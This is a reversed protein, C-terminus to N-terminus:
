DTVPPNYGKKRLKEYIGELVRRGHEAGVEYAEKAIFPAVSTVKRGLPSEYFAILRKIEGQTYHRSYIPVNLEIIKEPSFEARFEGMLEEWLNQPVQKMSSRMTAFMQGMIQAGVKGAGMTQLLRRVDGEKARTTLPARRNNHFGEQALAPVWSNIVMFSCLILLRKKM